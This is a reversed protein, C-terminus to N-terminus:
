FDSLSAMASKGLFERVLADETGIDIQEMMKIIKMDEHSEPNIVVFALYFKFISYVAIGQQGDKTWDEIHSPLLAYMEHTFNSHVQEMKEQSKEEESDDPIIDGFKVSKLQDNSLITLEPSNLAETFDVNWGNGDNFICTGSPWKYLLMQPGLVRLITRNQGFDFFNVACKPYASSYALMSRDLHQGLYQPLQFDRAKWQKVLQDSTDVIITELSSQGEALLHIHVATTDKEASLFVVDNSGFRSVLFGIEYETM